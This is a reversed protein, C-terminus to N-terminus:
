AAQQFNDNQEYQVGEQVAISKGSFAAKWEPKNFLWVLIGGYVALGINFISFGGILSLMNLLAIAGGCFIALKRGWPKMKLVGIGSTVLVVNAILAIFAVLMVIGGFAAGAEAVGQFEAGGEAVMAASGAALFGAGVILLFSFLAGIAGFVINLVGVTTMGGSRQNSM